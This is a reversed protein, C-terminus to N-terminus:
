MKHKMTIGSSNCCIHSFNESFQPFRNFYSLATKIETYQYFHYSKNRTRGYLMDLYIEQMKKPFLTRISGSPLLLFNHQTCYQYFKQLKYPIFRHTCKRQWKPDRYVRNWQRNIVSYLKRTHPECVSKSLFESILLLLHDQELPTTM